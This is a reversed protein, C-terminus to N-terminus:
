PAAFPIEAHATAAERWGGVRVPAEGSRPTGDIATERVGAPTEELELKTGDVDRSCALERM